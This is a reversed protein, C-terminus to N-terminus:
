TSIYGSTVVISQMKAVFVMDTGHVAEEIAAKSQNAANMGVVPNGGAGLGRTLQQGIQVCNEPFVSSVKMAQVDTNLTWFEAGKMLSELM